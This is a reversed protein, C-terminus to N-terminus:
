DFTRHKKYRKRAEEGSLETFYLDEKEKLWLRFESSKLFYDEDSIKPAGRRAVAYKDDEGGDQQNKRSDKKKHSEDRNGQRNGEDDEDHRRRKKAM